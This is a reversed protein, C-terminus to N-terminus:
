PVLSFTKAFNRLPALMFFLQFKSMYNEKTGYVSSKMDNCFNAIEDVYGFKAIDNEKTGYVSSKMDNRFEAIEEVHCFKAKTEFQLILRGSKAWEFKAM